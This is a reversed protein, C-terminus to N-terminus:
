RRPLSAQRSKVLEKPIDLKPAGPVVWNKCIMKGTPKVFTDKIGRSGYLAKVTDSPFEVEVIELGARNEGGITLSGDEDAKEFQKYQEPTCHAVIATHWITKAEEDSWGIDDDPNVWEANPNFPRRIAYYGGFLTSCATNFDGPLERATNALKPLEKQATFCLERADLLNQAYEPCVRHYQLYNYFNIVVNTANNTVQDDMWDFHQLFHSSFFAKTM